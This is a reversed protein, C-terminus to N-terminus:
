SLVTLDDPWTNIGVRVYLASSVQPTKRWRLNCLKFTTNTRSANALATADKDGITNSPLDLSNLISNLLLASALAEAGEDDINNNALSLGTLTSHTALVRAVAIIDEAELHQLRQHRKGELM